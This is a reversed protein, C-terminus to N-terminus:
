NNLNTVPEGVVRMIAMPNDPDNCVLTIRGNLLEPNSLKSPDVTVGIEATKGPKIRATKSDIVIAPDPTWVRRLMLDSKGTNTITFTRKISGENPDFRGLDVFLPNFQIHAANALQEPTYHTFNDKITVTTIYKAIMDSDTDPRISITDTVLGWDPCRSSFLNLSVVFMEGPPVIKPEVIASMYAPKDVVEPRITDGSQNYCKVYGGANNGKPIEGLSAISAHMRLPGAEVPYRSSLTNASGVVTGSILLVQKSPTANSQVQIRKSFRGPRGSANYDVRILISDGPAYERGSYSDTVVCGCNPRVDYVVLTDTGTNVGKFTYEVHELDESFAGFNHSMTTWRIKPQAALSMAAVVGTLIAIILRLQRMTM